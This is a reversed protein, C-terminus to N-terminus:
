EEIDTIDEPEKHKRFFLFLVSKKRAIDYELISMNYKKEFNLIKEDVIKLDSVITSIEGDMSFRLSQNLEDCIRKTLEEGVTVKEDVSTISSYGALQEYIAKNVFEPDHQKLYSIIKEIISQKRKLCIALGLKSEVINKKLRLIKFVSMGLLVLIIAIPIWIWRM